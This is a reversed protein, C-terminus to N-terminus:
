GILGLMNREFLEQIENFRCSCYQDRDCNARTIGKRLHLHHDSRWITEFDQLQLNGLCKSSEDHLYNCCMFVNADPAIVVSIPSIWCRHNRPYTLKQLSLSLTKSINPIKASKFRYYVQQEIEAARRSDIRRDSTFRFYDVNSVVNDALDDSVFQLFHNQNRPTLLYKVGIKTDLKSSRRASLLSRINERWTALEQRNNGEIREYRSLRVYENFISLIMFPDYRELLLGNTLLGLMVSPHASRVKELISLLEDTKPHNLPEGGGSIEFHTVGFEVLQEIIEGFLQPDMEEPERRDRTRRFSCYSCKVDCRYTPFVIAQRPPPPSPDYRRLAVYRDLDTLWEKKFYSVLPNEFPYVKSHENWINEFEERFSTYAESAMDRIVLTPNRDGEAESGYFTVAMDDDLAVISYPLDRTSFRVLPKKTDDEIRSLVNDELDDLSEHIKKQLNETPDDSLARVMGKGVFHLQSLEANDPSLFLVRFQIGSQCWQLFAETLRPNNFARSLSQAMLLVEKPQKRNDFFDDWWAQSLKAREGFFETIGAISRRRTIVTAVVAALIAGFIISVGLYLHITFGLFAAITGIVTVILFVREGVWKMREM